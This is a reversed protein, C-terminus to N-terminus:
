LGRLQFVAHRHVDRLEHGATLLDAHVRVGALVHVARLLEARRSDCSSIARVSRVVYRLQEVPPARDGRVMSMRNILHATAIVNREKAPDKAASVVVRHLTPRRTPM